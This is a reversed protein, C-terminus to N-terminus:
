IINRQPISGETDQAPYTSAGSYFNTQNVGNIYIKTRDAETAQTTDMAICIHMWNSTDTYYAATALSWLVGSPEVDATKLVM